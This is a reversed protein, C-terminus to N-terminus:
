GVKLKAQQNFDAEQEAWEDEIRYTWGIIFDEEYIMTKVSVGGIILEEGNVAEVEFAKPNGGLGTGLMKSYAEKAVWFRTCWEDARDQGLGALMDLEKETFALKKFDDSREEIAELDIGVPKGSAIAVSRMGKHALSIHLAKLKEGLEGDGYVYPKGNEDYSVNIAVPFPYNEDDGKVYSRVADKLAIRSILFAYQKSRGNLEDYYDREARNLYRGQLLMWSYAKEYVDHYTYVHQALAGATVNSQPKIISNWMDRDNEFRQNIWGNATMWVKDDRSMVMNGVVLSDSKSSIMVKTDFMGVQDFMDDYFNIENVRIPFSITNVTQTLHLYLGLNQGLADLLSGRGVQKEAMAYIGRESIATYEQVSQYLPGHFAYRDYAEEKTLPKMISKGIDLDLESEKPRQPYEDAFHFNASSHGSITLALTDDSKWVGIVKASFPKEVTIWKMAMASSIRVLKKGEAHQLALEALLELMLTFPVVPNLDEQVPWDKPQRIISHDILYPHESFTMHMDEEFRGGKKGKTGAPATEAGASEAIRKASEAIRKAPEAKSLLPTEPAANRGRVLVPRKYTGIESPAQNVAMPKSDEFLDVLERQVNVADVINENVAQILPNESNKYKLLGAALEGGSNSSRYYKQVTEKLLPFEMVIRPTVALPVVSHEVLYQPKVGMFKFDVDEKGNVFLMAMVRRLQEIGSRLSVSSAMAAYKKGKLTNDVFGVLSGLGVQIFIRADAEDYMKEIMGRFRVPRVLQQSMADIFAARDDTLSAQLTSLWVPKEAQKFTLNEATEKWVKVYDEVFPTHFGAFMPLLQYYVQEGDLVKILKDKSEEDGCLIIQDPCNDNAVYVREITNRWEDIKEYSVNSVAIYYMPAKQTSIFYIMQEIIKRAIDEEGISGAATAAHWEGISHGAYIDPKINLKDLATSNLEMVFYPRIGNYDSEREVEFDIIRELGFYDSITNTEFESDVVFGPYMFVVKGGKSILPENTYWIDMMGNWAADTDVINIAQQIRQPKPDFVTIRYDGGTNTFDGAELKKILAEKTRATAIITEGYYAFPRVSRGQPQEYATLVAHSNVGGFGFSNVGAVLPYKEGDWDILEQPANFRSESMAQLPKECHLTPPIKRHYIALATKILGIMGAAPMTHGINSKVSGVFAEPESVGGFFQTLTSIETRDGVVTGTGHAEIYGIKSPDMGADKWAAELVRIQGQVSTVMVHSGKGDSCIASGKIIAYINDNDAIARDLTKLVIFGAGQGILLGDADESFPSIEQKHSMAGMMNFASWFMANHILHMGGAVAVDCQGSELLNISHNVAVIGSACAADVTYAPGHMDFRNAVQSAVLSPMTGIATDAQYRGCMSQFEKKIKTLEEEPIEPCAYRVAQELQPGSRVVEAARLAINGSFNGRGIIISCKNLSIDKEFIGADILAQEVGALAYVQETEIGEFTIPVFGYRLPDVKYPRCFGGRNCYFNDIAGEERGFYYSDIISDPADIISDVGSSLNNWFEDLTDGGPCYISMGVIAIDKQQM